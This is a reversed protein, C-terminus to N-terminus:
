YQKEDERFIKGAVRCKGLPKLAEGHAKELRHEAYREPTGGTLLSKGMSPHHGKDGDSLPEWELPPYETQSVSIPIWLATFDWNFCVCVCVCQLQYTRDWLNLSCTAM